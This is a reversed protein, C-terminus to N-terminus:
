AQKKANQLSKQFDKDDAMYALLMQEVLAQRDISEGYTKEYATKYVDLMTVTSQKFALNQRVSPDKPALKQLRM